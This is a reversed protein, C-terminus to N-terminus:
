HQHSMGVHGEYRGFRQTNLMETVHMIATNRSFGSHAM